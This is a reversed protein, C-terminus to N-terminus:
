LSQNKNKVLDSLVSSIEDIVSEEKTIEIKKKQQRWMARNARDTGYKERLFRMTMISVQGNEKKEDEIISECEICLESPTKNETIMQQSRKFLGIVGM